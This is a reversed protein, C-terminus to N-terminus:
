GNHWFSIHSRLDSLKNRRQHVVSILVTRLANDFEPDPFPVLYSSSYRM